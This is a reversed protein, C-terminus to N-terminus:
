AKYKVFINKLNFQDTTKDSKVLWATSLKDIFGNGEVPLYQLGFFNGSAHRVFIVSAYDVNINFFPEYTNLKQIEGALLRQKAWAENEATLHFQGFTSLELIGAVPLGTNHLVKLLAAAGPPYKGVVSARRLKEAIEADLPADASAFFDRFFRFVHQFM